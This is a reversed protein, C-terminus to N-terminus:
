NYIVKGGQKTTHLVWEEKNMQIHYVPKAQSHQVKELSSGMGGWALEEKHRTKM